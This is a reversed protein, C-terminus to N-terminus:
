VLYTGHLGARVQQRRLFESRSKHGCGDSAEGVTVAYPVDTATSKEAAPLLRAFLSFGKL